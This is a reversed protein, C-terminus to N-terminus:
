KKDCHRGVHFGDYVFATRLTGTDGCTLEGDSGLLCLSHRGVLSQFAAKTGPAVSGLLVGDVQVRLADKCTENSVFFTATSAPIPSKSTTPKSLAGKTKPAAKPVTVQPVTQALLLLSKPQCGRARLGAELERGFVARMEKLDVLAQRYRARSKKVKWRYDPTLGSTEGLEDLQRIAFYAAELDGGLRKFKLGASKALAYNPAVEEAPCRKAGQAKGRPTALAQQASHTANAFLVREASMEEHLKNFVDIQRKFVDIDGFVFELEPAGGMRFGAMTKSKMPVSFTAREPSSPRPARLGAAPAINATALLPERAGTTQAQTVGAPVLFVLTVLASLGSITRKASIARM